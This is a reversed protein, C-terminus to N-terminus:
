SIVKELSCDKPYVAPSASGAQKVALQVEKGVWKETEKGFLDILFNQTTANM